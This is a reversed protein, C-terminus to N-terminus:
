MEEKKKIMQIIKTENLKINSCTQTTGNINFCQNKYATYSTYTLWNSSM